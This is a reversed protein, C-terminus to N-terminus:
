ITEVEKLIDFVGFIDEQEDENLGTFERSLPHTEGLLMDQINVMSTSVDLYNKNFVVNKIKTMIAIQKQTYKGSSIFNDLIKNALKQNSSDIIKKIVKDFEDSGGLKEEENFVYEKIIEIDTATVLLSKKLDILRELNEVYKKLIEQVETKISAKDIFKDSDHHTVKIVEDSFNTEVTGTAKEISLDAIDELEEKIFEIDDINKLEITGDLVKEIVDRKDKVANVTNAKSMLVSCRDKLIEKFAEVSGDKEMKEEANLIEMQFRQIEYPTNDEIYESIEKISQYTEETIYNLDASQVEEVIHRKKKVTYESSDIGDIQDKIISFLKAKFEKDKTTKLLVVRKLFLREKLSVSKASPLGDAKEDFFSFNSGFDFIYFERKDKGDGFINPCLRTGRGIMQWFKIKSKVPKFFVLNLIEPVDIGTDLMDVSIAIQPNSNPKKFNDLLVSNHSIESHIIEAEDTRHPFLRDFTKKIYEAHKKNKAFIITKGIKNGDDIKLGFNELHNLVEENTQKNLVRKNIESSGIEEEDEFKDEFEEKEEESLDKYKIGRQVIGLDVEIAKFRVLDGNEVAEDLSYADTPEKDGTEFFDYTNRHVEDAPTATLGLIFSDFYEFIGRYKKYITRHAEDVVILDFFGSNYESNKILNHVTEYTGFHLRADLDKEDLLNTCTEKLYENYNNKAQKVLEIRDALFLVKRVWGARILVDSISASVRTKGTGTAMVLLARMRYAEYSQLVSKIVRKQYGRDTINDDVELSSPKTAQISKKQQLIKRMEYKPFISHIERFPYIGNTYEITRGNTVFRLVDKGYEKELANGYLKAQFKGADVGKSYKKAEVIALPTDDDDWLVYDAFGNDGNDLVLPYEIDKRNVFEHSDFGAEYLELDILMSRTKAESIDAVPKIRERKARKVDKPIQRNAERLRKLEELLKANEEELEKAKLLEDKNEKEKFSILNPDYEGTVEKDSYVEVIWRQFKYLCKNAYFSEKETTTTNEKTHSATNGIKRIIHLEDVFQKPIIGQEELDVILPNIITNKKLFNEDLEEDIKYIFKLSLELAKRSYIASVEPDDFVNSESKFSYEYLSSFDNDLFSFNSM